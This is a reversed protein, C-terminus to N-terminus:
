ETPTETVRAVFAKRFGMLLPSAIAISSYTGFIVGALLAFSFAHIGPGGWVYMILVVLFTTGSTLLTRGLTQNISTNIVDHSVTKLKGRNERIRDFVVITDNVSYGIVTLVAAVMALDIKFSSIGFLEGLFSQYLWGSAAVLGVVIIVDHILCIVAALGWRWTGFRLWVYLVIAVWSLFVALGARWATDGAIAADFNTAVMAEGRELAASVLNWEDEAFQRWAEPRDRAAEEGPNVLVLFASHREEGVPALGIARIENALQGSFDPQFRMDRIRQSLDLETIAPTVNRVVFMAGGEFDRVDDRYAVRVKRSMAPDIQTMGDTALPLNLDPDVGGTALDFKCGIRIVLEKGFAAAAVKQIVPVRTETTSIQYATPKLNDDLEERTLQKDADTDVKAFFDAKMRAATWESLSVKKDGDKDYTGLFADVQDPSIREEVLATSQLKAYGAEGAKEAFMARVTNDNPLEGDILADDRFQVVAETGASFEIGWIDAKQWALSSVGLVIMGASIGWFIYRKGMWNVKPVGIFKLMGVQDKILGRDLLFQFIWRTVILATFMSIAVGLGLTIAFGKVEETAIWGLIVCTILTTLNADFIASFAREYATKLAMRISQNKAQEERLREFILVNADVAIGITLIIGAIGPLTFVAQLLSMAGLVLIINLLLAANAIAGALLYYVLMFVAVAILGAVAAWKGMERNERGIGPGFTSEAVPTKNLRAPLSGAKLTRVLDKVEEQSFRGTITGRESITSQIVPASYVEDDLLIAMCHGARQETKCHASTLRAFQKAGREDFRFAVAPRNREDRDVKAGALRWGSAGRKQLMMNNATNYLLVYRKGAYDDTVLGGYSGREGYIPFWLLSENRKRMGEPGERQLIEKLRVVETEPVTFQDKVGPAYPAVRFELVGAKAILRKLDSPDDLRRRVKAWGIYTEAVTDIQAARPAHRDKLDKLGQECREKRATVEQRGQKSRKKLADEEAPSVYNSLVGLLEQTRINQALLSEEIAEYANIAEDRADEAATRQADTEAAGIAKEALVMADHSTGLTGLLEALKADSGALEAIVAQRAAGTAQTVRRIGPRRINGEDIAKLARGYALRAERSEQKGAPMRIMIRNDGIPRWELNSLGLPDVRDRLISIMDKVLVSGTGQDAMEKLVEDIRRIDNTLDEKEKDTTAADLQKQIGARADKLRTKEAEDSVIEFILSHGGSLDIGERLGQYWLAGVSLLVLLGLFLFKLPLNKTNM